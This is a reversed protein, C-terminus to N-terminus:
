FGNRRLYARADETRKYRRLEPAAESDSAKLWGKEELDAVLSLVDRETLDGLGSQKLPILLLRPSLAQPHAADLAQLTAIILTERLEASIM